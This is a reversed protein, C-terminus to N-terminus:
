GHTTASENCIFGNEQAHKLVYDLVKRLPKGHPGRGPTSGNSLYALGALSCVAVNRSYNDRGSFAGDDGQHKALYTLGRDIAGQAPETLLLAAKSEPSAATALRSCALAACAALFPRRQM